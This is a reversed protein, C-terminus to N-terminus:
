LKPVHRDGEPERTKNEVSEVPVVRGSVIEGLHAFAPHSAVAHLGTAAELRTTRVATIRHVNPRQDDKGTSTAGKDQSRREHRDRRQRPPTGRGESPLGDARRAVHRTCDLGPRARAQM